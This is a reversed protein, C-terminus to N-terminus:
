AAKPVVKPINALVKIGLTGEMDRADRFSRDMYEKWIALGAGSFIGLAFGAFLLKRVNPKIPREPVRAPDILQFQEGKQRKELNEAQQAQENKTLLREYAERTTNYDRTLKTMMLERLPTNEVRKHYTAIDTNIKSEEKKLNEIETKTFSLQEELENTLSTMPDFDESSDSSISSANAASEKETDAAVEALNKIANKTILVDPHKETYKMQLEMLQGRLREMRMQVVAPNVKETSSDASPTQLSPTTPGTELPLAEEKTGESTLNQILETQKEIEAIQKQIVLKRELASNLADSVRQHDQQLQDLVSLNTAMREPLEYLNKQKFDTLTNEQEELKERTVNLEQSLFETTGQAQQERLNLNEEVFLSALRNTVKAVSLPDKGQYSINFYGENGGTTVSVDKRMLEIIEESALKKAEEPYLNFESIIKELQTRSMITQRISRIRDEIRSTVTPRVYDVPVEQPTVLITTSALYTRTSIKAYVGAVGLALILPIIIYWMRRLAIELYEDITLLKRSIM